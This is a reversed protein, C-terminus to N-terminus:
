HVARPVSDHSPACVIPCKRCVQALPRFIGMLSHAHATVHAPGLIRARHTGWLVSEAKIKEVGFKFGSGSLKRGQQIMEKVVPSDDVVECNKFVPKFSGNADGDALDVHMWLSDGAFPDNYRYGFMLPKKKM